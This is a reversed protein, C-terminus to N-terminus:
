CRRFITTVQVLAPMLAAAAMTVNGDFPQSVCPRVQEMVQSISARFIKMHNEHVASKQLDKYERLSREAFVEFVSVTWGPPLKIKELVQQLITVQKPELTSARCVMWDNEDIADIADESKEKKKQARKKKRSQKGARKKKSALPTTKKEKSALATAKKKLLKFWHPWDAEDRVSLKCGKSSYSLVEYCDKDDSVIDGIQPCKRMFKKPTMEVANGDMWKTKLTEGHPHLICGVAVGVGHPNDESILDKDVEYVYDNQAALGKPFATPKGGNLQSLEEIDLFFSNDKEVTRRV